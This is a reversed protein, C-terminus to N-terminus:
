RIFVGKIYGIIDFNIFDKITVTIMLLILLGFGILIILNKAKTSFKRRSLVELAMIAIHGGDLGPIPLVNFVALSISLLAAFQVLSMFGLSAFYSTAVFIGVPGTVNNSVTFKLILQKFLDVVGLITLKTIHWSESMAAPPSVLLNGYVKGNTTLVVGVRNTEVEKNGNQVKAKYTKLTKTVVRNNRLIKLTVIAGDSGSKDQILTIVDSNLYVSKGDVSKIIDGKQIGETEAPTGKEVDNVTVKLENKIGPHEWMGTYIPQFGIVFALYLLLVALVINMVVGALFIILLQWPKKSLLSKPDKEAAETVEGDEDEGRMSVYGGLPLLNIAYTTEGVKKSWLRPPFGFAFTKVEVGMAKAAVFHGLEHVFILLGLIVIIALITIMLMGLM